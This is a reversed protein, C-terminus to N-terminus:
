IELNLKTLFRIAMQTLLNLILGPRRKSIEKKPGWLASRNESFQYTLEVVPNFTEQPQKDLCMSLYGAAQKSM